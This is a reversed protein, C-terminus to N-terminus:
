CFLNVIHCIIREDIWVKYVAQFENKIKLYIAAFDYM